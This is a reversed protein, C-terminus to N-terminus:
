GRPGEIETDEDDEDTRGAAIRDARRARRREVKAALQDAMQQRQGRLLFLSTVMSFLAAYLLAWLDPVGLWIFVLLFVAFVLLRLVTYRLM